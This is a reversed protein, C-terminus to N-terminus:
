ETLIKVDIIDADGKHTVEAQLHAYPLKIPVISKNLAKETYVQLNDLFWQRMSEKGASYDPSSSVTECIHDLSRETLSEINIM